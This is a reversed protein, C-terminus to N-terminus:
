GENMNIYLLKVTKEYDDKVIKRLKLPRMKSKIDLCVVVTSRLFPESVYKFSLSKEKFSKLYFFNVDFLIEKKSKRNKEIVLFYNRLPISM